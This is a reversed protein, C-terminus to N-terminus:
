QSGDPALGSGTLRVRWRFRTNRSRGVLGRTQRPSLGRATLQEIRVALMDAACRPLSSRYARVYFDRSGPARLHWPLFSRPPSCIWPGSSLRIATAEFDTGHPLRQVTMATQRGARLVPFASAVQSSVLTHVLHLAPTLTWAGPSLNTSIVDPLAMEWCPSTVVQLSGDVLAAVTPSPLSKTQRM